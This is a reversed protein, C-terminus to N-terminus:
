RIVGRCVVLLSSGPHDLGSGLRGQLPYVHRSDAPRRDGSTPVRFRLGATGYVAEM